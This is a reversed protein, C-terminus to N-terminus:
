DATDIAIAPATGIGDRGVTVCMGHALRGVEVGLGTARGLAHIPAGIGLLVLVGKVSLVVAVATDGIRYKAAVFTGVRHKRVLEVFRRVSVALM